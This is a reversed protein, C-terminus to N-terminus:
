LLLRKIKIFTFNQYFSIAQSIIIKRPKTSVEGSNENEWAIILLNILKTMSIRNAMAIMRLREWDKEFPRFPYRKLDLGKEQYFIKGSNNRAIISPKLNEIAFNLFNRFNGFKRRILKVSGLKHRPVLAASPFPAIFKNILIFHRM